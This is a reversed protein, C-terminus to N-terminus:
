RVLHKRRVTQSMIMEESVKILKKHALTVFVLMQLFMESIEAVEATETGTTLKIDELLKVKLCLYKGPLFLLLFLVTIIYCLIDIKLLVHIFVCVHMCM